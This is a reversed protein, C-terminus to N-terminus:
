GVVREDSLFAIFHGGFHLVALLISLLKHRSSEVLRVQNPLVIEDSEPFAIENALYAARWKGSQSQAQPTTTRSGPPPGGSKMGSLNGNLSVNNNLGQAGMPTMPGAPGTPRTIGPRHLANGPQPPLPPGGAVHGGGVYGGGGHPVGPPPGSTPPGLMPIRDGLDDIPIVSPRTQRM